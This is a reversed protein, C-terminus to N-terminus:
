MAVVPAGQWRTQSPLQEGRMVFSRAGVCCHDGLVTDPFVASHPGLTAGRGLKAPGLRMLRDHFLHTELVAGRNITSHDAIEVLDFESVSMTEFWVDRGIRAGMARLYVSMLPTGLIDGCSGSAPSSSM